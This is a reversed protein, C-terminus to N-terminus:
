VFIIVCVGNKKTKKKRSENYEEDGHVLVIVPLVPEEHGAPMVPKTILNDNETVKYHVDRYAQHLGLERRL